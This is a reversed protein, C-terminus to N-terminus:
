RAAVGGTEWDSLMVDLSRVAEALAAREAALMAALSPNRRLRVYARMRRFASALRGTYRLDVDASFPLSILYAAAIWGGAFRWVITTQVAYSLLVLGLGAVITRMAPQDRSSVHRMAIARALRFPIWHNIRGWIAVPGALILLAGERFAFWAGHRTRLSIASDAPAIGSRRLMDVFANTRALVLHTMQRLAPPLQDITEFGRALRAAVVYEEALSRGSGLDAAAPALIETVYGALQQVDALREPTSTELLVNRLGREIERTLAEARRGGDVDVPPTWRHVDIPQGVAVLVRSRPTEKAEFVLGMPVIQLGAARGADRAALAMRAPGTKLPELMPADHSKGEPFILVASGADLADTIARFADANRAPDPHRGTPVAATAGRRAREDSARRLPVIGVARLFAGLVSNDFLVAKATIRVRRDVVCGVVLADVLANPHNVALLVPADRPIRDAGIVAIERYYWRLAVGAVVRLARYLM